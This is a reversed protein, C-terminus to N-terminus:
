TPGMQLCMSIEGITSRQSDDFAKVNIAGDKIEHLGKGLSRLTVLPCINPSSGGDILIRTIFYDKCQVTIRLVKYHSLGEPPLEGKHFSIKHSESVQGVMNEMEGRTIKRPVYAESLVKLM